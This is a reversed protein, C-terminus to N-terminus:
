FLFDLFFLHNLKCIALNKKLYLFDYQIKCSLGLIHKQM